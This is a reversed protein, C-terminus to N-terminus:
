DNKRKRIIVIIVFAAALLAVGGGIAGLVIPLNNKFELDNPEEKGQSSNEESNEIKKFEVELEINENMVMSYCPYTNSMDIKSNDITVGNIKLSEFEYGKDPVFTFTVKEDRYPDRSANTRYIEGNDTKYDVVYQPIFNFKVDIYVDCNPMIFALFNGNFSYTVDIPRGQSDLFRINKELLEYGVNPTLSTEIVEGQEASVNVFKSTGGSSINFIASNKLVATEEEVFAKAFNIGLKLMDQWIYHTGDFYRFGDNDITKVNEDNDAVEQQQERVTTTYKDALYDTPIKAVVVEMKSLDQGSKETLDTRFDKILAELMIGYKKSYEENACEAEGQMWALGKIIPNFGADKYAKLGKEVTEIFVDYCNGSISADIQTTGLADAVGKSCWNGKLKSYKGEVDDHLSSAGSAYKIIGFKNNMKTNSLYYAMGAEPGMHLGEVKDTVFGLGLKANQLRVSSPVDKNIGLDTHGFYLVNEFGSLFREDMLALQEHDSVTQGVANSQGAILYIDIDESLNSAKVEYQPGKISVTVFLLGLLALLKKM